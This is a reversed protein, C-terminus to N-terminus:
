AGGGWVNSRDRGGSRGDGEVVEGGRRRRKVKSGERGDFGEEELVKVECVRVDM